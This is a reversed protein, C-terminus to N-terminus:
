SEVLSLVISTTHTRITFFVFKVCFHMDAYYCLANCASSYCDCCNVSDLSQCVELALIGSEFSLGGLLYFGNLHVPVCWLTFLPISDKNAQVRQSANPFTACGGKTEQPMSCM